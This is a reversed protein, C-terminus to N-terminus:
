EPVPLGKTELKATVFDDPKVIKPPAAMLVM